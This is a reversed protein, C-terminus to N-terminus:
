VHIFWHQPEQYETHTLRWAGIKHKQKMLSQDSFWKRVIKVQITSDRDM